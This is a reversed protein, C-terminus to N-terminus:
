SRVILGNCIYNYNYSASISFVETGETPFFEKSKLRCVRNEKDILVDQANLRSASVYGRSKTYFKQNPTVTISYERGASTEATITVLTGKLTETTYKEVPVFDFQNFGTHMSLVFYKRNKEDFAKTAIEMYEFNNTSIFVKSNEKTIM